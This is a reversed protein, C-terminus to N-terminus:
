YADNEREGFYRRVDNVTKDASIICDGVSIGRRFNGSFFLGPYEQEMEDFLRQVGTYGKTYQPIARPWKNIRVVVPDGTVGVLARLEKTVLSALERDSKQVLDPQRMGGVFTTLAVHGEPARGPFLSSSWISGLIERNEVKPVLFGFGDLPRKVDVAKFGMFIVAVPAYTVSALIEKQGKTLRPIMGATVSTPTTIIVANYIDHDVVKECRIRFGGTIPSIEEVANNISIYKILIEGLKDTSQAMGDTFSFLRARDKSVEKRKRRERAGKIQGKILSGYKQELAFLKPFAAATSLAEPDGAYVGAVFPNIAFDLFENGLRYRVFDALTIEPDTSKKVFPEKLLRLKASFSFLKTALFKQPNMPLAHLYGARLIYRNNSIDNAYCKSANLGIEQILQGILPSTELTSNPGLDILFGANRETRISGGVRDGREFIKVNYHYKRLWFALSLGSIGAGIIAIKKEQM